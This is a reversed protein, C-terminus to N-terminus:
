EETLSRKYLIVSIALLAAFNLTIVALGFFGIKKGAMLMSLQQGYTFRAAMEISKNFNSLMPLFAFLIGVPVALGNAAAANKSFLGICSGLIISILSGTAMALIFSPINDAQLKGFLIFSCGTLLNAILIFGGVSLLYEKLTVNSMILVRLTNKEREEAIFSSSAVIPTFVIHMTAFISVFLGSIGDQDKMAQILILAVIPYIFFLMLVPLNKACDKSQKYFLASINQIRM